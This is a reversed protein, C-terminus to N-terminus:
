ESELLNNFSKPPVPAFISDTNFCNGKLVILKIIYMMVLDNNYLVKQTLLVWEGWKTEIASRYGQTIFM